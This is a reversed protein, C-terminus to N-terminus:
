APSAWGDWGRGSSSWPRRVKVKNSSLALGKGGAPTRLTIPYFQGKNLYAMPSEGSKIHIAKPSGLTYEFDSCPPSPSSLSASSGPLLIGSPLTAPPRLSHQPNVTPSQPIMRCRQAETEENKSNRNLPKMSGCDKQIVFLPFRLSGQPTVFGCPLHLAASGCNKVPSEARLGRDCGLFSVYFDIERKEHAKVGRKENVSLAQEPSLTLSQQLRSDLHGLNWLPQSVEQPQSLGRSVPTRPVNEPYRPLAAVASFCLQSLIFPWM